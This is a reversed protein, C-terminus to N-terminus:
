THNQIQTGLWIRSPAIDLELHPVTQSEAKHSQLSDTEDYKKGM